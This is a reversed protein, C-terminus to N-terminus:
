ARAWGVVLSTDDPTLIEARLGAEELADVVAEVQHEAVETIFRGHPALWAPAEAIARRLIELGDRGGDLATLPEYDRAEHPLLAIDATPVYPAVITVTSVRGRLEVPLPEFLDGLLVTAQVASLTRRANAVARPDIDTAFVEVPARSAVAAAIAGSGCCLDVLVSGPALGQVAADVLFESRPRPVFVGADVPVRVGAFDAWGLVHELPTGSVRDAIMRELTEDDRPELLLLDAEDEAFVCGAARLRAM